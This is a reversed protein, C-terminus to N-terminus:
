SLRFRGVLYALRDGLSRMGDSAQAVQEMLGLTDATTKKIHTLQELLAGSEQEGARTLDAVSDMAVHIHDVHADAEALAQGTAEVLAHSLEIDETSRRAIDGIRRASEAGRGALARVEQAVVAFGRGSEGAKSAQVSANLALLNTRFAVNDILVVMEGIERSQARLAAMRERLRQMQKRNRSSELRLAGVTNVVGEVQRGCSQLQAACRAVSDVMAAVSNSTQENRHKLEANGSAVMQAANKVGGVGQNVTAMLDSLRELSTTMGRLATAVEDVGLPMARSSLDGDAMRSIQLNLQQLGGRMVLFFTYVLYATLMLGLVLGVILVNRDWVAGELGRVLRADFHATQALRLQNVEERALAYGKRLAALDIGWAGGPPGSGTAVPALDAGAPARVAAGASAAAAARANMLQKRALLLYSHLSPLSGDLQATQPQSAETQAQDQAQDQTREQQGLVQNWAPETAAARDSATTLAAVAQMWVVPRLVEAQAEAPVQAGTEALDALALQLQGLALQLPPLTDVVFRAQAHLVPDAFATVNSLRVIAERLTTLAQLAQRDAQVQAPSAAPETARAMARELSPRSRAWVGQLPLNAALAAAYAQQLKEYAQLRQDAAPAQGTERSRTAAGLAVQVASVATALRLGALRQTARHAQAVQQNAVQVLVVLAPVLVLAAILAMKDRISLLRLLKVGPAWVGHHAFYSRMSRLLGGGGAAAPAPGPLNATEPGFRRWWPGRLTLLPM